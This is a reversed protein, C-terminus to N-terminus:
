RHVPNWSRPEAPPLQPLTFWIEGVGKVTPQVDHYPQVLTQVLGKGKLSGRLKSDWRNLVLVVINCEGQREEDHIIV